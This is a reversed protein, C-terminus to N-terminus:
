RPLTFVSDVDATRKLEQPLESVLVNMRSQFAEKEPFSLTSRRMEIPIMHFTTSTAALTMRVALGQRTALSFDQDFIFNGLSYFIAKGKYIEVPEVVHPHSGIVLDAGADIFARGERRQAATPVDTYETGWHAFITVYDCQSRIAQIENVVPSTSEKYLGHYGVFCIKQGQIEIDESLNVDNSPSGFSFLGAQSINAQTEIFGDQGFDLSHNNALSFGSFGLKKLESAVTPEFTFRLVSFDKVSVSPNATITGELNGIALDTGEFISKVKEFSAEFGKTQITKRVIRDLMIDGTFLIDVPKDDKGIGFFDGAPTSTAVMGGGRQRSLSFFAAIAVLALFVPIIIKKNKM